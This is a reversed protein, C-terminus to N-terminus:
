CGTSDVVVSFSDNASNLQYTVKCNAPTPATSIRYEGAFSGGIHAQRAFEPSRQILNDISGNWDNVMFQGWGSPWGYHTWITVGDQVYYSNASTPASLSCTGPKSACKSRGLNAASRLTGALGHLAAERAEKTVNLFKPLATAALVGLIVIVAILEILTFGHVPPHLSFRHRSQNM